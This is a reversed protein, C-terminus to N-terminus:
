WWWKRSGRETWRNGRGPSRSTRSGPPTNASSRSSSASSGWSPPRPTRLRPPHRTELPEGEGGCSEPNFSWGRRDRDNPREQVSPRWWVGNLAPGDAHHAGGPRIWQMLAENWNFLHKIRQVFCLSGGWVSVDFCKRLKLVSIKCVRPSPPEKCRILQMIQISNPKLKDLQSFQERLNLICNQVFFFDLILDFLFDVCWVFWFMTLIQRLCGRSQHWWTWKLLKKKKTKLVSTLFFINEKKKNQQPSCSSWGKPFILFFFLFLFSIQYINELTWSHRLCQMM